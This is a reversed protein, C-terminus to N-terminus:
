GPETLGAETLLSEDTMTRRVFSRILVFPVVFLAHYYRLGSQENRYVPRVIVDCVRLKRQACHALLDNVYGYSPWLQALPLAHYADKSLATYGCQSDQVRLGTSWHTLRSLLWTGIRRIAPMTHRARHALRNGKAYDAAGALVPELLALLDDPHMQGDGAMVVAVDAAQAFACHYGSAVAAGVGLNRRHRIVHIRQSALQATLLSTHDTSADDVIVIHDVFEPIGTITEQLHLAENFAPVLVAIRKGNLM